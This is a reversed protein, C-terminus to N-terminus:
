RKPRYNAAHNQLYEDPDLNARGIYITNWIVIATM